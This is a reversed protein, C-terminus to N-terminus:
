DARTGGHSPAAVPVPHVPVGCRREIDHALDGEIFRRWGPRTPDPVVVAHFNRAIVWRAVMKPANRARILAVRVDFGRRRLDDAADNVIAQQEEWELRTPQLGPHPLGLSTGHIRAIGLVTIKAHEPAALDITARLVDPGLPMANSVLLVRKPPVPFRRPAAPAVGRAKAMRPRRDPEAAM